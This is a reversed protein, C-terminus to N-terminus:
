GGMQRRIGALDPLPWIEAIRGGELRYLDVSDYRVSQGTPQVGLFEGRHTGLTSVYAVARDKTALIEQVDLHLDPLASRLLDYLDALGEPGRADISVGNYDHRVFGPTVLQSIVSRDRENVAQLVRRVTAANEESVM